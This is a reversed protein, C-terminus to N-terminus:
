PSKRRSTVISIQDKLPKDSEQDSLKDTLPDKIRPNLIESMKNMNIRPNSSSPHCVIVFLVITIVGTLLLKIM